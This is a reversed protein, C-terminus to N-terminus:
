IFELVEKLKEEKFPKKMYADAMQLFERNISDTKTDAVLVIKLDQAINPYKELMAKTSVTQSKEYNIDLFLLDPENNTLWVALLSNKTFLNFSANPNYKNVANLLTKVSDDEGSEMSETLYIVRKKDQPIAKLLQKFDGLMQNNTYRKEIFYELLTRKCLGGSFNNKNYFTQVSKSSKLRRMLRKELEYIYYIYAVDVRQKNVKAFSEKASKIFDEKYKGDFENIMTQSKDVIDSNESLKKSNNVLTRIAKYKPQYDLFLRKYLEEPNTEIENLSQKYDQLINMDKIIIDIHSTVIKGDLKRFLSVVDIFFQALLEMQNDNYTSRFKVFSEDSLDGLGRLIDMFPLLYDKLVDESKTDVELTNKTNLYELIDDRIIIENRKSLLAAKLSKVNEYINQFTKTDIEIKLDEKKCYDKLVEQSVDLVEEDPLFKDWMYYDIIDNLTAKKFSEESDTEKEIYEEIFDSIITKQIKSKREEEKDVKKQTSRIIKGVETELKELKIPKKVLGLVFRSRKLINSDNIDETTIFIINCRIRHSKILAEIAENGKMLPMNIDAFIYTIDKHKSNLAVIELGNEAEYIDEDKVDILETTVLFKRIVMRITKSDDAIIIKNKM